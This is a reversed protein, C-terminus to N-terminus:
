NVNMIWLKLENKSISSTVLTSENENNMTNIWKELISSRVLTSEYENNMTKIWEELYQVNSLNIWM